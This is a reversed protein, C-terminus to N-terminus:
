RDACGDRSTGGISVLLAVRRQVGYTLAPNGSNLRGIQPQQHFLNSVLAKERFNKV